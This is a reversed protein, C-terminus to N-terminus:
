ALSQANFDQLRDEQLYSQKMRVNQKTLPAPPHIHWKYPGDVKHYFASKSQAPCQIM